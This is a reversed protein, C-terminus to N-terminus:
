RFLKRTAQFRVGRRAPLQRERNDRAALIYGESRRKRRERSDKSRDQTHGRRGAPAGGILPKRFPSRSNRWCLMAPRQASARVSRSTIRASAAGNSEGASGVACSRGARREGGLM